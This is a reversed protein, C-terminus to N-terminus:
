YIAEDVHFGLRAKFRLCRMIRLPDDKFTIYPDLPTRLIRKHIDEFGKKTWDEVEETDINYFM